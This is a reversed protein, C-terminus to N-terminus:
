ITRMNYDCKKNEVFTYDKRAQGLMTWQGLIRSNNIAGHKNRVDMKGIIDRVQMKKAFKHMSCNCNPAIEHIM